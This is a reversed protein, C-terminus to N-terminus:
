GGVTACKCSPCRGVRSAVASRKSKDPAEYHIYFWGKAEADRKFRRATKGCKSCTIVPPKAKSATLLQVCLSRPQQHAQPRVVVGGSTCCEIVATLADCWSWVPSFRKTARIQDKKYWAIDDMQWDYDNELLSKIAENIELDTAKTWDVRRSFVKTTLAVIGYLVGSIMKLM